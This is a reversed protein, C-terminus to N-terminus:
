KVSTINQIQELHLQLFFILNRMTNSNKAEYRCTDFHYRAWTVLHLFIQLTRNNIADLIVEISLYFGFPVKGKVRQPKQCQM